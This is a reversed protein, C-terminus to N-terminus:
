VSMLISLYSYQYKYKLPITYAIHEKKGDVILTFSVKEIINKPMREVYHLVLSKSCDTTGICGELNSIIKSPQYLRGGESYHELIVSDEVLEVASDKSFNFDLRSKRWINRSTLHANNDNDLDNLHMIEVYNYGSKDGDLRYLTSDFEYTPVKDGEYFYENDYLIPSNEKEVGYNFHWCGTLTLSMMATVVSRSIISVLHRNPAHAKM